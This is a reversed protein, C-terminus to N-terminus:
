PTMLLLTKHKELVGMGSSQLASFWWPGQTQGPPSVLLTIRFEM